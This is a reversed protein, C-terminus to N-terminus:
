QRGGEKRFCEICVRAGRVEWHLAVEGSPINEGFRGARGCGACSRPAGIGSRGKVVLLRSDNSQAELIAERTRLELYGELQQRALQLLLAAQMLHRDMDATTDDGTWDGATTEAFRIWERLAPGPTLDVRRTFAFFELDPQQSATLSKKEM